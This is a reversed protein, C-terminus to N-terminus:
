LCISNAQGNCCNLCTEEFIDLRCTIGTPICEGCITAGYGRYVSAGSCCMECVDPTSAPHFCDTGDPLCEGSVATARDAGLSMSIAVLPAGYVLRTGTRVIARRSSVHIQRHAAEEIPM